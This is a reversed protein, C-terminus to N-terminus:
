NRETLREIGSVHDGALRSHHQHLFPNDQATM